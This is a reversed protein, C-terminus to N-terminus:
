KVISMKSNKYFLKRQRLAILRKFYESDDLVGSNYAFKINRFELNIAYLKRFRIFRSILEQLM